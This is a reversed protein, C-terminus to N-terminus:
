RVATRRRQEVGREKCVRRWARKLEFNITLVGQSVSACPRGEQALLAEFVMRAEADNSRVSWFRDTESPAENPCVGLGARGEGALRCDAGMIFGALSFGVIIKLSVLWTEWENM